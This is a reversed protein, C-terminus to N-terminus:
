VYSATPLRREIERWEEEATEVMSKAGWLPGTPVVTVIEPVPNLVVGLWFLTAKLPAAAVTVDDVAVWITVVTGAAAVVPGIVTVVGPPEAALAVGNVTVAVLPVGVMVPNLGAIAVAPLATVMVPVFKSGDGALSLTFNLPKRSEMTLEAEGVVMLAVTGDTTPDPRIPTAVGEPVATLASSKKM